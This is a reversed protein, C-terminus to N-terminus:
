WGGLTRDTSDKTGITAFQKKQWELNNDAKM